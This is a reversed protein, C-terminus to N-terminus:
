ATPRARAALWDCTPHWPDARHEPDLQAHTVVRATPMVTFTDPTEGFARTVAGVPLRALTLELDALLQSLQAKQYDSVIHWGRGPRQPDPIVEADPIPAGHATGDEVFRWVGGLQRVGGACHLEIGVTVLNPHIGKTGLCDFVGHGPGGAHNGNRTVPVLQLVGQSEDRGILFHACAGDGPKSQWATVLAKWDERPMDTSHVVVAWPAVTGGMRGPHADTRKAGSWWGSSWRPSPASPWPTVMLNTPQDAALDPGATDRSTGLEAIRAAVQEVTAEVVHLANEIDDIISM